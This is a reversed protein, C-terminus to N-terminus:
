LYALAVNRLARRGAAEADPSYAEDSAMERYLVELDARLALAIERRLTQRAHHVAEVDIVVMQEAVYDEGPLTAAEAVFAPELRRDRLLEGFADIFAALSPAQRGAIALM